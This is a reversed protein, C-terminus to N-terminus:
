QSFLKTAVLMNRYHYDPSVTNYSNITEQLPAFLASGTGSYALITIICNHIGSHCTDIMKYYDMKEQGIPMSEIFSRTDPHSEDWLASLIYEEVEAEKMTNIPVRKYYEFTKAWEKKDFFLHALKKLLTHDDPLKELLNIYRDIAEDSENKLAFYDAKRIEDIYLRRQKSRRIEEDPHINSGTHSGSASYIATPNNSLSVKEGTSCATLAIVLICFYIYKM